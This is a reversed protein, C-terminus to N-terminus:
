LNKKTKNKGQKELCVIVRSLLEQAEKCQPNNSIYEELASILTPVEKTFITLYM